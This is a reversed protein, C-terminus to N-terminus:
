KWKLYSKILNGFFKPKVFLYIYFVEKIAGFGSYFRTLGPLSSGEFDLINDTQSNSEIFFDIIKFMARKEYGKDNSAAILYYFTKDERIFTAFSILEDRYYATITIQKGEERSIKLLNRIVNYTKKKIVLRKKIAFNKYFNVLEDINFENVKLQVNFLKAKKINRKINTHYRKYLNSYNESLDIFFNIKEKYEFFSNYLLKNGLSFVVLNYRNVLLNLVHQLLQNNEPLFIQQVFLPQLYAKYTLFNKEFIPFIYKYNDFILAKWDPYVIDLYWSTIYLKKEFSLNKVVDDWKKKEIFRNEVIQLQM